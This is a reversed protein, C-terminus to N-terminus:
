DECRQKLAQNMLEFGAQTKDLTNKMLGVLVGRFQEGHTFLTSGDEQPSLIFYHEGDFIGKMGVIGLWRLEQQPRCVLVKPAFSMAKTDPPQIEVKLTNGVATIGSLSKILPNWEPYSDFDTLATWIKAPSAQILIETNIHRMQKFNSSLYPWDHNRPAFHVTKRYQVAHLPYFLPQRLEILNINSKEFATKVFFELLYHLFRCYM